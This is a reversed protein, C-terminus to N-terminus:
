GKSYGIRRRAPNQPPIILATAPPPLKTVSGASRKRFMGGVM